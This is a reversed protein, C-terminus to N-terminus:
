GEKFDKSLDGYYVVDMMLNNLHKFVFAPLPKPNGYGTSVLRLGLM